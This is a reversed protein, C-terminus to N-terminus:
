TGFFHFFLLYCCCFYSSKSGVKIQLTVINLRFFERRQSHKGVIAQKNCLVLFGLLYKLRPRQLHSYLYVCSLMYLMCIIMFLICTIMYTCCLSGFHQSLYESFSLLQLTCIYRIIYKGLFYFMKHANTVYSKKEVCKTDASVHSCHM